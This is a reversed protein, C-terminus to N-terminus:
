AARAYSNGREVTASTGDLYRLGRLQFERSLTSRGAHEALLLSPDRYFPMDLAAGIDSRTLGIDKLLADDSYSLNRIARRHAWAKVLGAGMSASASALLSLKGAFGKFTLLAFM